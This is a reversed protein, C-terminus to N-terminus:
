LTHTTVDSLPPPALGPLVDSYLHALACWTARWQTDATVVERGQYLITRHRQEYEALGHSARITWHRAAIKWYCWNMPSSTKGGHGLSLWRRQQADADLSM